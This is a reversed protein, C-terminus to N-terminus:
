SPKAVDQFVDLIKKLPELKERLIEDLAVFMPIGKYNSYMKLLLRLKPDVDILMKKKGQKNVKVM